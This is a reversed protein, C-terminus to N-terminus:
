LEISENISKELQKALILIIQDNRVTWGKESVYAKRCPSILKPENRQPDQVGM